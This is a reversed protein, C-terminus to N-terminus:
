AVTSAFKTYQWQNTSCVYIMATTLVGFPYVAIIGIFCTFIMVVISGLGMVFFIGLITMKNGATFRASERLSEMVGQGQDVVLFQTLAYRLLVAFYIPIFFMMGIFAAITAPEPQQTVLFAIGAPIGIVGAALVLIFLMLLLQVGMSPLVVPWIQFAASFPENHGRLFAMIFKIAVAMVAAGVVLGAVQQLIQAVIMVAVNDPALVPLIAFPMGVFNGVFGIAILVVGFLLLIGFNSTFITWSRNLITGFDIISPTLEVGFDTLTTKPPGANPAAYPNDSSPTPPPTFSPPPPPATEQTPATEMPVDVVASCMPCKAKQGASEDPTRLLQNCEPCPFEVPM